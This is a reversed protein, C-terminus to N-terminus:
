LLSAVCNVAVAFSSGPLFRLSEGNNLCNAASDTKDVDDDDDDDVKEDGKRVLSSREADERYDNMM